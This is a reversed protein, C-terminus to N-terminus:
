LSLRAHTSDASVQSRYAALLGQSTAPALPESSLSACDVPLTDAGFFPVCVKAREGPKTCLQNSLEALLWPMTM